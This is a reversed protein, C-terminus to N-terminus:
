LHKKVKSDEINPCTSIAQQALNNENNYGNYNRVNIINGELNIKLPRGKLYDFCYGKNALLYDAQKKTMEGPTFHAIGIGVPRSFNYLAALVDAKDKSSIDIMDEDIETYGYDESKPRELYYFRENFLIIFLKYFDEPFIKEFLEPIYSLSMDVNMGTNICDYFISRCKNSNNFRLKGQRIDNTLVELYVILIEPTITDPIIYSLMEILSEVKNSDSSRTNYIREARSSERIEERANKYYIPAM